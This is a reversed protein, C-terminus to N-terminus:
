CGYKRELSLGERCHLPILQYSAMYNRTHAPADWTLINMRGEFYSIQKEFLRHDATLGPLFVLTIQNEEIHESLWYHIQGYRTDFVKEIM